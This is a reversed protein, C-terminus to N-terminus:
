RCRQQIIGSAAAMRRQSRGFANSDVAAMMQMNEQAKQLNVMATTLIEVEKPELLEHM